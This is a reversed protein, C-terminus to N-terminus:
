VNIGAARRFGEPDRKHFDVREAESMESFAKGGPNAPQNSGNAGGGSGKSGILIPAYKEISRLESKLDDLTLASMKGEADKVRVRVEGDEVEEVALRSMITPALLDPVTSLEAAVRMATDQRLVKDLQKQLKAKEAKSLEEANKLKDKWSSELAEVDSKPINGRRMEDLMDQLEQNKREAKIRHEEAINKKQTLHTITAETDDGDIDLHFKGDKQVYEKKLEEPLDDISDLVKKLAM